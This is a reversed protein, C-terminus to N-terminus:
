ARYFSKKTPPVPTGLAHFNQAGEWLDQRICRKWRVRRSKFEKIIFKYNDVFLCQWWGLTLLLGRNPTHFSSFSLETSCNAFGPFVAEPPFGFHAGRLCLPSAQKYLSLPQGLGQNSWKQTFSFDLNKSNSQDM